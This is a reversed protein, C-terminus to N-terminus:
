QIVLTSNVIYFSIGMKLNWNIFPEFFPTSVLTKFLFIWKREAKLLINNLKNDKNTPNASSAKINAIKISAPFILVQGIKKSIKKPIM